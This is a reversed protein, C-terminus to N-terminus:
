VDLAIHTVDPPANVLAVMVHIMVCVRVHIEACALAYVRAHVEVHVPNQITARLHTNILLQRLRRMILHTQYISRKKQM